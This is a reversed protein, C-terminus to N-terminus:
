NEAITIMQKSLRAARKSPMLQLVQSANKQKMRPLIAVVTEDDLNAMLQAVARSEMGDYLKALNSIRTSEAQEVKLLKQTVKKNLIELERERAQLEKEKEVLRAEEQKIWNVSEISDEVSMITEEEMDEAQPEYDLFELNNLIKDMVADDEQELQALVSDDNNNETATKEPALEQGSEAEAPQTEAPHEATVEATEETSEGGILSITGFAIGLVVILGIGGFLLYKVLGGKKGAAKTGGADSASEGNVEPNKTNEEAM